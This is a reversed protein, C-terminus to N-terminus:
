KESENMRYVMSISEILQGNRIDHERKGFVVFGLKDYLTKAVINHSLVELFFLNVGHQINMQKMFKPYAEKAYGLGRYKSNLDAGVSMFKHEKNTYSTRFYGVPTNNKIIMYFSPNTKDFWDYSQEITFAKDTHLFEKCENRTENFFPIDERSMPRFSLM